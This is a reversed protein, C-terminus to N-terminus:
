MKLLMKKRNKAKPLLLFTKEKRERETDMNNNNNNNNNNKTAATKIPIFHYTMTIKVQSLQQQIHKSVSM